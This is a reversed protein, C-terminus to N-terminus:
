PLVPSPATPTPPPTGLEVHHQYIQSSREAINSLHDGIRELNALLEVFVIGKRVSCENAQLRKEHHKEYRRTLSNIEGEIKLAKSLATGNGTELMNILLEAQARIRESIDRVESLADDSFDGDIHAADNALDLIITARDGVREV